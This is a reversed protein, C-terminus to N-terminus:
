TETQSIGKEIIGEIVSSRSSALRGEKLEASQKKRVLDDIAELLQESITITIRAKKM